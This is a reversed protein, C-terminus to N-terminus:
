GLKGYVWVTGPTFVTLAISSWNDGSTQPPSSATADALFTTAAGDDDLTVVGDGEILVVTVRASLTAPVTVTCGSAHTFLLIKGHDADTLTRTTGTVEEIVPAGDHVHDARALEQSTGVSGVRGVASPTTSTPPVCAATYWDTGDTWLWWRGGDAQLDKSAAVGDIQESGNRLLRIRKSEANNSKDIVLVALLGTLTGPAPLQIDRDVSTDILLTGEEPQLTYPSSSVSTFNPAVAHTHTALALATGSGEANVRGISQASATTVPALGELRHHASAPMLGATPPSTALGAYAVTSPGAPYAYQTPAALTRAAGSRDIVVVHESDSGNDILLYYPSSADAPEGAPSSINPLTLSQVPVNQNVTDTAGPASPSATGLTLASVSIKKTAVASTDVIPVVDDSAVAAGTLSALASIKTDAM